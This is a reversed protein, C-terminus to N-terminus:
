SAAPAPAGPKGEAPTATAPAAVVSAVGERVGVVVVKSGTALREGKESRAPLDVLSGRASLTIRGAETPQIELIVDAGLGVFGEESPITSLVENRLRQVLWSALLGSGSGIGIAFALTENESGTLGLGDLVVGTLGFFASAFSWFRLSFLTLWLVSEFTLGADGGSPAHSGGHGHAHGVGGHGHGVHGLGGHAHGLHGVGGGLGGHGGGAGHQGLVAPLGVLIGGVALAGGYIALM